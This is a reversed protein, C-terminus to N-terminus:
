SPPPVSVGRLASRKMAIVHVAREMSQSFKALAENELTASVDAFDIGGAQLTRM